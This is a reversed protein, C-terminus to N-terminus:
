NPGYVLKDGHVIFMDYCCVQKIKFVRYLLNLITIWLGGIFSHCICNCTESPKDDSNTYDILTVNYNRYLNGTFDYTLRINVNAQSDLSMTGELAYNGRSIKVTYVTSYNLSLYAYGDTDTTTSAVLQGKSDLVQVTAGGCTMGYPDWVQLNVKYVKLRQSHKAYIHVEDGDKADASIQTFNSLNVTEGNSLSWTGLFKYVYTSDEEREAPTPINQAAGGYAVRERGLEAGNWDHYVIQYTKMSSDYEAVINVDDYIKTYDYSWGTFKYTRYINESLTPEGYEAPWTAPHGHLIYQVITLPTSQLSGESVKPNWFQVRYYVDKCRFLAYVDMNSTIKSLDVTNAPEVNADKNLSETKARDTWGEFTYGGWNVDKERVPNLKNPYVAAQGKLVYISSLCETKYTKALKTYVITPNTNIKNNELIDYTDTVWENYYNVQYYINVGDEAVSESGKEGTEYETYTCGKNMCQRWKAYADKVSPHDVFKWESFSHGTAPKNPDEEIEVYDCKHEIGREDVWTRHCSRQRGGATTCTAEFYVWDDRMDHGLAPKFFDRYALGCAACAFITYGEQTCTPDVVTGRFDHSELKPISEEEKDGCIECVRVRLGEGGDKCTPAKVVTWESWSHTRKNITAQYLVENCVRCKTVISGEKHCTASVVDTVYSHALKSSAVTITVGCNEHTVCDYRIEGEEKCTAEKVVTGKAGVFSHGGAPITATETAGCGEVSCVRQMTGAETNTSEKTVTWAGWTHGKAATGDYRNYTHTADNACVMVTYGGMTCTPAVTEKEQYTHGLKPIVQVETEDCRSCKFTKSGDVECTAPVTSQEVSFDHGLAKSEEGTALEIRYYDCNNCDYRTYKGNVCTQEYVVGEGLEHGKPQIVTTKEYDCGVRQCKEVITGAEICTAPTETTKIDHELADITRVEYAGCACTRKEVGQAGCKAPVMVEWAGYTHAKKDLLEAKEAGCTVCKTYKIGNKECTAEEIRVAGSYDHDKAPIDAIEEGCNVCKIKGGSTCDVVVESTKHGTAPIAETKSYNCRTCTITKVGDKTCTAPTTVKEVYDHGLKAITKVTVEDRHKCVTCVNIIKGDATCTAPTVETEYKHPIKDKGIVVTFTDDGATVTVVGDEKCTPETTVKASVFKELNAGIDVTKVTGCVSCTLTLVGTAKDYSETWTHENSAAGIYKKYTDGCVSCEMVDYSSHDCTADEHSKVVYNHQIKPISETEVIGCRTCTLTREGEKACTAPTKEEIKYSHGLAPIAIDNEVKEGCVTCEKHGKGEETCTPAVDQILGTLTHDGRTSSTEEVKKYGCVTCTYEKGAGHQCNAAVDVGADFTHTAENYVANVIMNSSVKSIDQDWKQFTFHKDSTPYKEKNIEEKATKDNVEKGYGVYQIDVCKGNKDLFVVVYTNEDWHAYYTKSAKVADEPNMPNGATKDDFLGLWSHGAYTGGTPYNSTKDLKAQSALSEGYYVETSAPALTNGGNADFFVTYKPDYITFVKSESIGTGPVSVNVTVEYSNIGKEESKLAPKAFVTATYNDSTNTYAYYLDKATGTSITGDEFNTATVSVTPEANAAKLNKTSMVVGYQDLINFKFQRNVTDSGKSITLNAESADVWDIKSPVPSVWKSEFGTNTDTEWSGTWGGKVKSMKTKGDSGVYLYGVYASTKSDVGFNGSWLTKAGVMDPNDAIEVKQIHWESVVFSVGDSECCYYQIKTPFGECANVFAKAKGKNAKYIFSEIDQVVYKENGNADNYFITFGGGSNYSTRGNSNKAKDYDGNVSYGGNKDQWPATYSGKANKDNDNFCTVSVYYKGTDVASAKQPAVFVMATFAM